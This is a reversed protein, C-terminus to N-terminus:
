LGQQLWVKNVTVADGANTTTLVVQCQKQLPMNPQDATRNVVQTISFTGNGSITVTQNGGTLDHFTGNPSRTQLKAAISGVVTVGTVEIDIRLYISGEHNLGFDQSIPFATVVGSIPQLNLATVDKPSLGIM